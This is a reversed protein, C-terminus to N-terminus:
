FFRQKLKKWSREIMKDETWSVTTLLILHMLKAKSFDEWIEVFIQQGTATWLSLQFLFTSFLDNATSMLCNLSKISFVIESFSYHLSFNLDKLLPIYYCLGNFLCCRFSCYNRQYSCSEGEIGCCKAKEIKKFHTKDYLGVLGYGEPCEHQWKSNYKIKSENSPQKDFTLLTCNEKNVVRNVLVSCRM